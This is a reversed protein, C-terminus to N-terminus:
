LKEKTVARSANRGSSDRRTVRRSSIKRANAQAKLWAHQDDKIGIAEKIGMAQQLIEELCDSMSIKRADAQAKLWARQGSKSWVSLQAHRNKPKGGARPRRGGHTKKKMRRTPMLLLTVPKM